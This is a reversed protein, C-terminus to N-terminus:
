PAHVPDISLRYGLGHLIAGVTSLTPNGKPSLAKHISQRTLRTKEALASIGGRARAVNGLAVLLMEADNDEEFEELAVELYVKAEKSDKLSAILYEDYKRYQRKKATKRITM